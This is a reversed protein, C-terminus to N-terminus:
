DAITLTVRRFDDRLAFPQAEDAVAVGDIVASHLRGGICRLSFHRRRRGAFDNGSLQRELTVVTGSRTVTLRHQLCAGDRYAFSSGDDEHLESLLSGDHQPLFLQLELTDGVTTEANIGARPWLPLVAGARVFLPISDLPAAASIFRRGNSYRHDRLDYWGGAPLYVTRATAGASSIPAVLLHDGLMFQDDIERTARDSQDSLVLPRQVPIGSEAAQAFASNLYALLRYRLELAARLADAYAPGFSWPYQDVNGAMSHNRCFPTLAGYQMWRVMLEAGTHGAFGGIDAGVFPQGSLGMGLAMSCAIQLHDWRAQNDGLWNAAYRQIGAFGARSLIFPRQEPLARLLGDHTGMAMLLGYQNHFRGHAASGHQFRMADPPIDGTAPENMDNWIGALGSRVHAANREGWWDRAEALSFDPFATRGPWVQGIYPEGSETLCFLGRALGEDYMDYGPEAKVGPDIITITRFGLERLEALTAAPDPFRGVDWSFVRYGRMYDIDLWLTDCPIREARLRRALATFSHQDYPFWRCQHYGLAWLPPRQMRGTLASYDALITALDPGAFVYETYHGGSFHLGYADAHSFDVAGRYPNDIFSGAAANHDGQLHSFFPINVYYPDFGSSNRDGRPDDSNRGATFEATATPNLVDTNWLTFDRGRLNLRGTREGLGYFADEPRASRWLLFADNRVAYTHATGDADRYSRFVVSGDSRLCDLTFPRRGIRLVLADTQLEYSDDNHFFRFDAAAAPQGAIVAHSPQEDFRGARSIQLRLLRPSIVTVQLQESELAITVGSPGRVADGAQQLPAFHRTDVRGAAFLPAPSMVM